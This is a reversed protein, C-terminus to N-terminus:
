RFDFERQTCNSKPKCRLKWKEVARVYSIRIDEIGFHSALYFSVGAQFEGRDPFNFKFIEQFAEAVQETNYIVTYYSRIAELVKFGIIAKKM